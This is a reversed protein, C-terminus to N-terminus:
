NTFQFFEDIVENFNKKYYLNAYMCAAQLINKAYNRTEAFPTMEVFLDFPINTYARNWKRVNGGGANYAQFAKVNKGQVKFMQALYYSGFKINTDPDTVDYNELKFYRAIEAATAPMLQTLGIAGAHSTVRPKFFSECRMLAYLFYEPINYESAYKTVASSFPRPYLLRLSSDTIEANYTRLAYQIFNMSDAIMDNEFLITSFKEADSVSIQPIVYQMHTYLQNYLQCEVLNNLVEIGFEYSFEDKSSRKYQTVFTFDSAEGTFYASMLNYYWTNQKLTYADHLDLFSDHLRGITFSLKAKAENLSSKDILNRLFRLQNVNKAQTFQLTLDSILDEYWYDDKWTSISASLQELFQDTNYSRLFSLKYWLVNDYDWDTPAYEISKEYYLLITDAFSIGSKELFKALYFYITHLLFTDSKLTTDTNIYSLADLFLLEAEQYNKTGNLLARGFDSFIARTFFQAQNNSILKEILPFILEASKSYYKLRSLIRAMLVELFLSTENQSELYTFIGEAMEVTIDSNNLFQEYFHIDTNHLQGGICYAKNLHLQTEEIETNLKLILDSVESEKHNKKSEISKKEKELAQLKKEYFDVQENSSSLELYKKECLFSYAGTYNEYGHKFFLKANETDSTDELVLGLYYLLGDNFSVAKKFNKTTLEQLETINRAKALDWLKDKLSEDAHVCASLGAFIFICFSLLITYRVCNNQHFILIHEQM